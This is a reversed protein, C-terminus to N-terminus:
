RKLSKSREYGAPKLYLPEFKPLKGSAFLAEAPALLQEATPEGEVVPIALPPLEKVWEPPGKPRGSEFIQFYKEGRFGPIVVALKKESRGHALAHFRPLALAPKGVAYAAVSAYAMGVRIGTFRGPGSAAAVGDLEAEKIGARKLLKDLQPFLVEDHPKAFTKHVSFVKGGVSLALSFPEACTDVVLLNM